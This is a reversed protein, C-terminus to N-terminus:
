GAPQASDDPRHLIDRLAGELDLFEFVFGAELLRAPLVWRSKLILETETRIGIAGLELMWRQLPVGFPVGLVRRLTAMLEANTVPNPSTVNV